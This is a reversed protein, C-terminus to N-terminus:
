ISIKRYSNLISIAQRFKSENDKTKRYSISYSGISESDTESGTDESVEVVLGTIITAALTIDAPCAVSYGWKATVDINEHNDIFIGDYYVRNKPTDNLPYTHYDDSDLEDKAMIPDGMEIKTLEVCDDILLEHSGDGDYKRTSAETDAIFNRNTYNDIIRETQEIWDEIQDDSASITIGLYAAIQTKNTYGKM